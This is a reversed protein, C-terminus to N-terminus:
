LSIRMRMRLFCCFIYESHSIIISCSLLIIEPTNHKKKKIIKWVVWEQKEKYLVCLIPGLWDDKEAVCETAEGEWMTSRVTTAIVSRISYLHSTVISNKHWKWIHTITIYKKEEWCDRIKRPAITFIDM